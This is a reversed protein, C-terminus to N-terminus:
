ESEQCETAEAFPHFNWNQVAEASPHLLSPYERGQQASQPGPHGSRDLTLRRSRSEELSLSKRVSKVYLIPLVAASVGGSHHLSSLYSGLDNQVYWLQTNGSRDNKRVMM